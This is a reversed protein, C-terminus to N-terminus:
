HTQTEDTLSVYDGRSWKREVMVGPLPRPNGLRFNGRVMPSPGDEGLIDMRISIEKYAPTHTIEDHYSSTLYNVAEEDKPTNMPLYLENGVVRNTVVARVKVKGYPSVLRVLAGTHLNRELALEESVEVYTTPVKKEIGAVRYTLNGEHFHELMRGNNLHLDYEENPELVPPHWTPVHLRAKGDPFAFGDVYLLPTDTGDEQVPWQLTQYGELLSYKVGIMLQTLSTAEELIESPHAYNWDAGLRNEKEAYELTYTNLWEVIAAFGNVKQEIFEAAHWGQDIIYKAVASLWILDTGPRPHLLINARKALDNKRLDAVILKQGHKKHARRIRTSLVPHSEAPNAGVIMVLHSLALDEISGTDGGLGFTRRLGETAPTQCYRSCNDINNTGIVARAFKQMLYNEENTCKSSSICAIADPGHADRIEALRKATYNLAEDWTVPVFEDGKRILPTTLREESNVFEWGFKGKICTSIQNAPAEM